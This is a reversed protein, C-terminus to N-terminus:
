NTPVDFGVEGGIGREASPSPALPHPREAERYISLPGPPSSVEGGSGEGVRPPSSMGGERAPFPTLPNPRGPPSTM